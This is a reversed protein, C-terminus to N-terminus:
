ATIALSTTLTVNFMQYYAKRSQEIEQKKNEYQQQNIGTWNTIIAWTTHEEILGLDIEVGYSTRGYNKTVRKYGIKRGHFLTTDIQDYKEKMRELSDFEIRFGIGNSNHWLAPAHIDFRTSILRLTEGLAIKKKVDIANYKIGLTKNQNLICNKYKCITSEYKEPFIGHITIQTKYAYIPVHSPIHNRILEITLGEQKLLQMFKEDFEYQPAQNTVKRAAPEEPTFTRDKSASKFLHYINEKKSSM